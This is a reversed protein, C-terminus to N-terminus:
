NGGKLCDKMFFFIAFLYIALYAFIFCLCDAESSFCFWIHLVLLITTIIFSVWGLAINIKSPSYRYPKLMGCCLLGKNLKPKLIREYKSLDCFLSCGYKKYIARYAKRTSRARIELRKGYSDM